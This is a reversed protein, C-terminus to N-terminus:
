NQYLAVLINNHSGFNIKGILKLILAGNIAGYMMMTILMIITSEQLIYILTDHLIVEFSIIKDSQM